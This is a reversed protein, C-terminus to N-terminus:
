LDEDVFQVEPYVPSPGDLLPAPNENLYRDFFALLLDSTVRWM